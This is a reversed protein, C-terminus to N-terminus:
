LNGDSMWESALTALDRLGVSGSEDFDVGDCWLPQLCGKAWYSALAAFDHFDVRCDKVGVWKDCAVDAQPCSLNSAMRIQYTGGTVDCYGSAVRVYYRGSAPCLWFIQQPQWYEIAILETAADRDYLAFCASESTERALDLTYTGGAVANFYYWHSEGITTAIEDSLWVGQDLRCPYALDFDVGTIHRSTLAVPVAKQVQFSNLSFINDFGLLPTYARVFGQWDLGIGQLVYPGPEMIMTSAVISEEPAAPDTYAQVFIPEGMFGDYSVTGSVTGLDGITLRVHTENIESDSAYWTWDPADYEGYSAVTLFRGPLYAPLQSWPIAFEIVRQGAVFSVGGYSEWYTWGCEDAVRYYLDGWTFSGYGDDYRGVDVALAGLASPGDPAYSLVMEYATYTATIDDCLEIACLLGSFNYAMYVSKIDVGSVDDAREDTDDAVDTFVTQAEDWDGLSGDIQIQSSSVLDLEVDGGPQLDFLRQWEDQTMEPLIGGITPDDGLGHAVSGPLAGNWEDFETLVDRLDLPQPYDLKSGFMPNPDFRTTTVQLNELQGSLNAVDGYAPGWYSFTGNSISNADSSVAGSFFAGGYQGPVDYEMELLLQGAERSIQTVRWPGPVGGPNVINLSGAEPAAIGLIDYNLSLEWIRDPAPDTLQYQKTAEWPYAGVSDDVLSDRLTTLRESLADTTDKNAPDIYLFEDEQPDTGSPTDEDAIYNVVALYTDIAQVLDDRADQLRQVGDNSDNTTPLVKLLDPHALLLDRNVQLSGGYAKEILMDEPSIYMDYAGRAELLAKIGQLLGKLALVEGYDVEVPLLWRSTPDYYISNPDFPGYYVPFFVRMEAPQIYVRFRDAPADSIGDLEAIIADIEPIIGEDLIVRIDAADPADGPVEYVGYRNTEAVWALKDLELYPAWCDNVTAVGFERALEIASNISEGDDRLGIMVARTLAHFFKLERDSQCDTCGSDALGLEFTEYASRVGSVKGNFLLARGAATYDSAQSAFTSGAITVIIITQIAMLKRCM